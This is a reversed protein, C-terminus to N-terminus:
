SSPKDKNYIEERDIKVTEDAEFALRVQNRDVRTVKVTALIGNKDHIIVREDIKRSLILRSMKNQTGLTTAV